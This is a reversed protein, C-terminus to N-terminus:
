VLHQINMPEIPAADEELGQDRDEITVEEYVFSNNLM